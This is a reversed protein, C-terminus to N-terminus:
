TIVYELNEKLWQNKKSKNWYILLYVFKVWQRFVFYMVSDVNMVLLLFRVIIIICAFIIHKTNNDVITLLTRRWNKSQALFHLSPEVCVCLYFLWKYLWYSHQVHKVKRKRGIMTLKSNM